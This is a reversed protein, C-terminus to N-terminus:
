LRAIQYQALTFYADARKFEMPGSDIRSKDKHIITVSHEDTDTNLVLRVSVGKNEFAKVLM